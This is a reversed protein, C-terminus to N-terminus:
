KSSWRLRAGIPELARLIRYLESKMPHDLLHVGVVWGVVALSGGAMLVIVRPVAERGVEDVLFMIMVPGLVSYAVLLLAPAVFTFLRRFGLGFARKLAMQSFVAQALFAIVLLAVVQELELWLSTMLVLIRVSQIAIETNLVLGVRGVATLSSNYLSYPTVIIAYATIMAAMPVSREWQPGFLFLILPESLVALVGLVPAVVAVMYNMTQGYLQAADGGQRVSKAFVPFHVGKVLRTVRGVLMRRLGVARSYFGVESFGLTRGFILDPASRGMENVIGSLSVISGFRVVASLGSLGPLIWVQGPRFYNLMIVKSVHQAISGWVMSLYSEGMWAASITVAANVFAGAGHVIALKDFELERRLLSLLPTGFPMILFNFALLSLVEAVGPHGYFSAMPTSILFLALAIAWSTILAVSFAARFEREGVRKAQILYQGVGFERFLHAFGLIAVSVSFIGIEEPTLLRSVVVVSIFGFIFAAMQAIASVGM